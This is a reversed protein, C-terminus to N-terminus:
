DAVIYLISQELLSLEFSMCETVLIYSLFSSSQFDIVTLISLFSSLSKLPTFPPYKM